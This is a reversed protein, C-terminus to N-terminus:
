LLGYFSEVFSSTIFLLSFSTTYQHMPNKRITREEVIRARSFDANLEYTKNDEDRVFYDIQTSGFLTSEYTSGFLTLLIPFAGKVHMHVIMTLFIYKHVSNPVAIGRSYWSGNM